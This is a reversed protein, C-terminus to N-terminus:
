VIEVEALHPITMSNSGNNSWTTEMHASFVSGLHPAVIAERLESVPEEAKDVRMRQGPEVLLGPIASSNERVLGIGSSPQLWFTASRRRSGSSRMPAVSRQRLSRDDSGRIRPPVRQGRSRQCGSALTYLLGISVILLDLPLVDM